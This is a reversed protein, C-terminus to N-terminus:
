CPSRQHCLHSGACWSDQLKKLEASSQEAAEKLKLEAEEKIEEIRAKLEEVPDVEAMARIHTRAPPPLPPALRACGSGNVATKCIWTSSGCRAHLM